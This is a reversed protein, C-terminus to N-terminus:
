ATIELVSLVVDVTNAVSSNASISDNQELVLKGGLINLASKSPVSVDRALYRTTSASSDTAVLTITSATVDDKNAVQALFIIATTSSPCAYITTNSTTLATQYHKFTEAM